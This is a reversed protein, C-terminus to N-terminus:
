KTNDKDKRKDQFHSFVCFGGQFLRIHKRDIYPTMLSQWKFNAPHITFMKWTSRERSQIFLMSNKCAQNCWNFFFM